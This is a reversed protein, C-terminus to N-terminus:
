LGFIDKKMQLLVARNLHVFSLRSDVLLIHIRCATICCQQSNDETKLEKKCLIIQASKKELGYGSEELSGSEADRVKPFLMLLLPLLSIGGESLDSSHFPSKILGLVGHKYM